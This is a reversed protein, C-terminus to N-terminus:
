HLVLDRPKRNGIATLTLFVFLVGDVLMGLYPLLLLFMLFMAYCWMANQYKFFFGRPSFGKGTTVDTGTRVSQGLYVLTLATFIALVVQPWVESGISEYVTKEITLTQM